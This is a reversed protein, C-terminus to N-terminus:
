VFLAESSPAVAERDAHETNICILAAASPSRISASSTLCRSAEAIQAPTMKAAITDRSEVAVKRAAADPTRSASLNYWMHAQAYDQPV